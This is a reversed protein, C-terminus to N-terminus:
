EVKLTSKLINSILDQKEEFSFIKNSGFQTFLPIKNNSYYSETTCYINKDVMIAEVGTSGTWVVINDILEFLQQSKVFPKLLVVNKFQKIKSYFELERCLFFAPHEKIVVIIDKEYFFRVVQFLKEYYNSKDPHDTWYDVTAEPYWHLPVYVIRDKNAKLFTPDFKNFYKNTFLLQRISYFGKLYPAFRYEYGLKNCIKHYYFYRVFLRAYYSFFYRFANKYAVSSSIALPSPKKKMLSDLVDNVEHECPERYKNAEGYNTVLKYKPYLFFDTIGLCEVSYYNAFKFMIDMVYNDVTGAVILKIKPNSSFFDIFYKSCLFVFLRAEHLPISRLGRCRKIVDDIKLVEEILKYEIFSICSISYHSFDIVFDADKKYESITRFQELNSFEKLFSEPYFLNFYQKKGKIRIFFLVEDDTLESYLQGNRLSYESKIKLEQDM